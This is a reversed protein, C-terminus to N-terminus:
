RRLNSMGSSMYDASDMVAAQSAENDSAGVYAAQTRQSSNTTADGLLQVVLSALDVYANGGVRDAGLMEEHGAEVGNSEKGGSRLLHRSPSEASHQSLPGSLLPAPEALELRASLSVDARSSEEPTRSLVGVDAGTLLERVRQLAVARRPSPLPALGSPKVGTDALARALVHHVRQAAEAAEATRRANKSSSARCHSASLFPLQAGAHAAEPSRFSGACGNSCHSAAHAKSVKEGGSGASPPPSSVRRRLAKLESMQLALTQMSCFLGTWVEEGLASVERSSTEVAAIASWDADVADPLKASGPASSGAARCPVSSSTDSRALGTFPAIEPGAASRNAITDSSTGIANAIEDTAHSGSVVIQRATSLQPSSTSGVTPLQPSSSSGISTRIMAHQWKSDAHQDNQSALRWASPQPTLCRTTAPAEIARSSSPSPGRNIPTPSRSMPTPSRSPARQLAQLAIMPSAARMGCLPGSMTPGLQTGPPPGAPMGAPPMVQPAAPVSLCSNTPSVPSAQAQACPGQAQLLALGPDLLAATGGLPKEGCAGAKGGIATPTAPMACFSMGSCPIMLSSSQEAVARITAAETSRLSTRGSGASCIGSLSTATVSRQPAFM